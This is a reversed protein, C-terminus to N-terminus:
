PPAARGTRGDRGTPSLRAATREPTGGLDAIDMSHLIDAATLVGCPRGRDTVVVLRYPDNLLTAAEVLSTGPEVARIRSAPVAIDALRVLGRRAVPCAALGDLTVLGALRGDLDVVPYARHPFATVTGAVFVAVSEGAYGCVPPASMAQEVNVGTLAGTLRVAAEEARAATILYWGILVPWLGGLDGTAVTVAVGACALLLGLVVGARAAARRGVSRDGSVRWVVAALVRGGDLPAGPLLNFVALLANGVALWGFGAALLHAGSWSMLLAGAAFAFGAGLSILPGALAIALGARPHPPEDELESVGGLVWLTVARTRVGYRRAALAHGLEHGLLAAAFLGAFGIAALWYAVPTYGGAARPLVVVALGQALLMLVVLVSWHVGVPIGQM